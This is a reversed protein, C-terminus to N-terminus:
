TTPTDKRTPPTTQLDHVPAQRQSRAHARRARRDVLLLSPVMWLVLAVALWNHALALPICGALAAVAAARCARAALLDVTM